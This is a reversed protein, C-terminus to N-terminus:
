QCSSCLHSEANELSDFQKECLGCMYLIDQTAPAQYVNVKQSLMPNADSCTQQHRKLSNSTTYIKGCQCAYKREGTHLIMHARLKDPYRFKKGCLDCKVPEYPIHSAEHRKLASSHAFESNCVSCKYPKQGTHTNMHETWGTRNHFQKMCVSCKYPLEREAAPKHIEMHSKLKSQEFFKFGCVGCQFKKEQTHRKKHQQVYRKKAYTKLCIDCTFLDHKEQNHDDLQSFTQYQVKCVKCLFAKIVGDTCTYQSDEIEIQETDPNVLCEDNLDSTEGRTDSLTEHMVDDSLMGDRIESSINEVPEEEKFKSELYSRARLLSKWSGHVTYHDSEIQKVLTIGSQQVWKQIEEETLHAIIKVEASLLGFIKDLQTELDIEAKTYM